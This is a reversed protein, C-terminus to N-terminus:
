LGCPRLGGPSELDRGLGWARDLTALAHLDQALPRLREALGAVAHGHPSRAACSGVGRPEQGDASSPEPFVPSRPLIPASM